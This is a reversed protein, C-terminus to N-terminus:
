AKYNYLGVGAMEQHGAQGAYELPTYLRDTFGPRIAGRAAQVRLAFPYYGQTGVVTGNADTVVYTARPPKPGGDPM